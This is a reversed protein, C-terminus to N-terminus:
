PHHSPLMLAISRCRSPLPSPHRLPLTIAFVTIANFPAAAVTVAIAAVCCCCRCHRHFACRCRRCYHGHVTCRCHLLLLLPHRLPLTINVVTIATPPAFDVFVAVVAVPCCCCSGLHFTCCCHLPLLPLLLPLCLLLPLLLPLLKVAHLRHCHCCCSSPPM